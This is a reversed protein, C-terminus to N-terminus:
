ELKENSSVERVIEIECYPVPYIHELFNEHFMEILEWECISREDLDFLAECSMMKVLYYLKLLQFLYDVAEHFRLQRLVSSYRSSLPESRCLSFIVQLREEVILDNWPDTVHYKDKYTWSEAYSWEFLSLTKSEM